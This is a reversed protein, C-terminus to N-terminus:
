YLKKSVIPLNHVYKIGRKQGHASTTQDFLEVVTCDARV